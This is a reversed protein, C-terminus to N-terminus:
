STAMTVDFILHCGFGGGLIWGGGAHGLNFSLHRNFLHISIVQLLNKKKTKAAFCDALDERKYLEDFLFKLRFFYM